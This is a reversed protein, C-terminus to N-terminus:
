STDPPKSPEVLKTASRWLIILFNASGRGLSPKGELDAPMKESPPCIRASCILSQFILDSLSILELM